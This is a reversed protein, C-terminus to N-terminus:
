ESEAKEQSDSPASLGNEEGGKRAHSKGVKCAAHLANVMKRGTIWRPATGSM